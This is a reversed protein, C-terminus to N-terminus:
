NCCFKYELWSKRKIWCFYWYRYEYNEKNAARRGPYHAPQLDHCIAERRREGTVWCWITETVVRSVRRSRHNTVSEPGPPWWWWGSGWAMLQFGERGDSGCDIFIIRQSEWQKTECNRQNYFGGFREDIFTQWVNAFSSVFTQAMITTTLVFLHQSFRFWVLKDDPKPNDFKENQM